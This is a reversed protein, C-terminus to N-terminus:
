NHLTKVSKISGMEFEVTTDAFAEVDAQDHSILYVPIKIEKLLQGLLSRAETRLHPDLASFPEDLLLLRPRCILARLLAIRQKEGGSLMEAKIQWCSKLNLSKKYSEIQQNVLPWENKQYRAKAVLLINEEATLHPFLSYDQFVVGLQRESLSLKEMDVQNFAWSWGRAETLGVLVNFFTTKGSGSPGFFVTVGNEPLRLEPIDLQFNSRQVFLNKILSM